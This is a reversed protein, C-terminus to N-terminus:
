KCRASDHRTGLQTNTSHVVDGLEGAVATRPLVALDHDEGQGVTWRFCCGCRALFRDRLACTLLASYVSTLRFALRVVDSTYYLDAEIIARVDELAGSEFVMASGVFRALDEASAGPAVSEPARM